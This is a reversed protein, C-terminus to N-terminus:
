CVKRRWINKKVDNVRFFSNNLIKKFDILYKGWKFTKKSLNFKRFLYKIYELSKCWKKIEFCVKLFNGNILFINFIYSSFKRSRGLTISVKGYGKQVAILRPCSDTGKIKLIGLAKRLKWMSLVFGISASYNLTFIIIIFLERM